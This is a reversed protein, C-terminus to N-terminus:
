ASRRTESPGDAREFLEILSATLVKIREGVKITRVPADGRKIAAYLGAKSVHLVRATVPVDLVAPAARLAALIASTSYDPNTSALWQPESGTESSREM